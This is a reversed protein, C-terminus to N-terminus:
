LPMFLLLSAFPGGNVIMLWGDPQYDFVLLSQVVTLWTGLENLTKSM